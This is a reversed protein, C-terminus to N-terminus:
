RGKFHDICWPFLAIMGVLVTAIIAGFGVMSQWFRDQRRNNEAQIAEMRRTTEAHNNELTLVRDELADLKPRMELAQGIREELREMKGGISTVGKQLEMLLPTIGGDGSNVQVNDAM